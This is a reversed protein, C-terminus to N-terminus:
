YEVAFAARMDESASYLEISPLELDLVDPQEVTLVIPSAGSLNDLSTGYVLVPLMHQSQDPPAPDQWAVVLGKYTGFPVGPDEIAFDVLDGSPPQLVHFAAPPGPVFDPDWPNVEFLTLLMSGEAPWGGSHRFYGTINGTTRAVDSGCAALVMVLGASALGIKMAGM